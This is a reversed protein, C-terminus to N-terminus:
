TSLTRPRVSIQAIKTQVVYPNLKRLVCDNKNRDAIGNVKRRAARMSTLSRLRMTIAHDRNREEERNRESDFSCPSDMLKRM